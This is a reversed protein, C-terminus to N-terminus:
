HTTKEGAKASLLQAARTIVLIAEPMTLKGVVVLEGIATGFAKSTDEVAKKYTEKDM